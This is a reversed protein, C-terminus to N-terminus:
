CKSPPLLLILHGLSDEAVSLAPPLAQSEEAQRVTHALERIDVRRQPCVGKQKEERLVRVM